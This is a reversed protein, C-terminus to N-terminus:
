EKTDVANDEASDRERKRTDPTQRNVGNSDEDQIQEQMPNNVEPEADKDKFFQEDFAVTAIGLEDCMQEIDPFINLNYSKMSTGARLVVTLVEKLMARRGLGSRDIRFQVRSIYEPGFNYEVVYSIIEKFIYEEVQNILEEIIVLLLDVKADAESFTGGSLLVTDPVGLSQAKKVDSMELFKVYPTPDINKAEKFDLEWMYNGDEDRVSPLFFSGHAMLNGAINQLLQDNPVSVGDVITYGMPYRGEMNPSGVRGIHKIMHQYTIKDYYWFPYANKYRSSGFVSSYERDLEFWVLKQRKVTKKGSQQQQIVYVLEDTKDVYFDFSQEPDLWKIKRLTAVDGTFIDKVKGQNDIDTVTIQERQWIKEGFSFGIKIGDRLMNRVVSTHHKDYAKKVIGRMVPDDCIISHKLSSIVGVMLYTALALVPDKAMKKYVSIPLRDSNSVSEKSRGQPNNRLAENSLGSAFGPRTSGGIVPPTKMGYIGSISDPKNFKKETEVSEESLSIKLKSSIDNTFHAFHNVDDIERDRKAFEVLENLLGM